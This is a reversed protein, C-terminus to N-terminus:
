VQSSIILPNMSTAISGRAGDGSIKPGAGGRALATEVDASVVVSEFRAAGTARALDDRGPAFADALGAAIAAPIGAAFTV